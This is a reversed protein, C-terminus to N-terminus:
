ETMVLTLLPMWIYRQLTGSNGSKKLVLHWSVFCSHQYVLDTECVSVM